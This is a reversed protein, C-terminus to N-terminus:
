IIFALIVIFIAGTIFSVTSLGFSIYSKINKTKDREMKTIELNANAIYQANVQGLGQMSLGMPNGGVASLCGVIVMLMGEVFLVDKFNYGKYNTIAVAIGFLLIAWVLGFLICKGLTKLVSKDM